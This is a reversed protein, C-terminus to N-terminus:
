PVPIDLTLALSQIDDLALEQGCSYPQGEQKILIELSRTANVVPQFQGAM